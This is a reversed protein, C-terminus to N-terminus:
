RCQGSIPITIPSSKTPVNHIISVSGSHNGVVTPRYAIGISLSSGPSLRYSPGGSTLTFFEGLVSISGVLDINSSAPNMITTSATSSKSVGVIGLSIERTSVGVDIKTGAIPPVFPNSEEKKCGFLLVLCVFVMKKM